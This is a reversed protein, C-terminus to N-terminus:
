YSKFARRETSKASQSDESQQERQSHSPQPHEVPELNQQEHNSMSSDPSTSTPNDTLSYPNVNPTGGEIVQFVERQQADKLRQELLVEQSELSNIFTGLLKARIKYNKAHNKSRKRLEESAQQVEKESRGKFLAYYECICELWQGRVYAYVHGANFPDYRVEIRTGEVEPDRFANCWYYKHEYKVGSGPQVIATGRPIAPLTVIRFHQDFPIRIHNRHGYLAIGSAYSDRPSQGLAPHETTDYVEYAWECLYYFLLGITWLSLEKPNVSKTMLRVKKTIQTNGTLNYLFQTNSTGFLRECTASFRSKTAPRHKVTCHLLILLSEFYTSHFESGNDVILTQPLRGFRLVCIQLIAMCTRYSPSDYTVYVALIRRSFGDVLFSIWPKGLNKGTRSCRLEVDGETHDLYCYHFPFDGHRPTTLDLEWYPVEQEYAARHGARALTQNYGSRRKIEAIFTKYSPILDDALGQEACHVVFQAYVEYKRKQKKNEYKEEIFNNITKITNEPLKRNRNGKSKALHILGIYGYGYRQEAEHICAVAASQGEV